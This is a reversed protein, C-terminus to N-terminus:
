CRCGALGVSNWPVAESWRIVWSAPYHEVLVSTWIGQFAAAFVVEQWGGHLFDVGTGVVSM